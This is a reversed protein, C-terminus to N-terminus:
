IGTGVTLYILCDLRDGAGWRWEGLGAANVDADISVPLGLERAM